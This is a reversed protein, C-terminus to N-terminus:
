SRVLESWRATHEREYRGRSAMIPDDLLPLDLEQLDVLEAELLGTDSLARQVWAAIGTCIRRPRNNGIVVAV